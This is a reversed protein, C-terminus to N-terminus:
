RRRRPVTLAHTSTAPLPCHPAAPAAPSPGGQAGRVRSGAAALRGAQGARRATSPADSPGLWAPSLLAPPTFPAPGAARRPASQPLPFALPRAPFTFAQLLLLACSLQVAVSSPAGDRGSGDRGTGVPDTGHRANPAARGTASLTDLTLSTCIHVQSGDPAALIGQTSGTTSGTTSGCGRHSHLAFACVSPIAGPGLTARRVM